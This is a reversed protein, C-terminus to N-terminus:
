MSQVSLNNKNNENLNHNIVTQLIIRSPTIVIKNINLHYIVNIDFLVFIVLSDARIVPVQLLSTM